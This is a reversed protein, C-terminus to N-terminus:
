NKLTFPNSGNIPPGFGGAKGVQSYWEPTLSVQVRIWQICILQGVM